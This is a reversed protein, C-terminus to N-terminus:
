VIAKAIISSVDVISTNGPITNTSIIKSVGAKKIKIEANDRLLAHTCAVFIRKCKQKKLFETAKIISGGTSIMDDVLILDRGKVEKLNTSRIQIKGTHRNRQKQLSVYNTGYLKAFEKARQVGGLDPSVIVPKKLGLKKVYSVLQPVASVNRAPIKFHELAIHIDVVIVKSVGLVKFLKAITRMTVIEGPLFERDQRAYGFYPIVAIVDSSYQKAKSMISLAQILHSDVPPHTSQVVVISGKKPKGQITIKGEGDPFVRLNCNLYSANLKKAIKKALEQSGNGGIVTFKKLVEDLFHGSKFKSPFISLGFFTAM